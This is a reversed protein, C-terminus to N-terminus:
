EATGAYVTAPETTAMLPPDACAPDVARTADPPAPVVWVFGKAPDNFGNPAGATDFVFVLVQPFTAPSSRDMASRALDSNATPGVAAFVARVLWPAGEM